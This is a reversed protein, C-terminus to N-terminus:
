ASQSVKVAAEVAQDLDDIFEIGTGKLMDRAKEHNNGLLRVVLKLDAHEEKFKILPQAVQDCATIGGLINIFILKVDPNQAVLSLAARVKNHNAGGGVDLFNAPRGGKFQVLDMTSMTLGAGNCLIGINGGDLEVLNLDAMSARRERESLDTLHHIRKELFHPHRALADENFTIKGDLAIISGDELQALPNIEALDLDHSQYLNYLKDIIKSVKSFEKGELGMRYALQLALHSSYDGDVVPVISVADPNEEIEIGGESSGILIPCKTERDLTIAIYFEKKISVKPEVLLAHPKEGKIPLDFLREAVSLAETLDSAFQIGGAKGRGGSLVQTKLTAPCSLKASLLEEPYYILFAPGSTEIGSERFLKKAEYEFFKM